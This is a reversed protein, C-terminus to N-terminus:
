KLSREFTDDFRELVENIDEKSHATSLYLPEFQNPHIYVGRDLLAHQLQIYREFDMHRRMQRYDSLGGVNTKTLVIAIMPGVHQIAHPVDRRTLIEKVGDTLQNSRDYLNAYLVDKEALVRELVANAASLVLANGSYVGGHFVEGRAILEMIEASAGFAAVPFGGGLAKSIVTLDPTVNYLQQAGGPAVRLGTIVEDFILLTGHRRTMERVTALFGPQPTIVGANGMVPEMLVAAVSGALRDLTQSLAASDNWGVLYAHRPAGGM